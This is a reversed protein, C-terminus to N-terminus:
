AAGGGWSPPCSKKCHAPEEMEIILERAHVAMAAHFDQRSMRGSEFEIFLKNPSIVPLRASVMIDIYMALGAAIDLV